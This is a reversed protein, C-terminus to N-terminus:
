GKQAWGGTETQQWYQLEHGSEKYSKWRNRASQVAQEDSGDFVDLLRAYGDSPPISGDTVTLLTANNPNDATATLYIPQEAAHGDKTSGHPLFSSPNYTWLLTNLTEVAADDAAKVVVRFGAGLAKELLQPLARELPSTTLHYFRIDTM